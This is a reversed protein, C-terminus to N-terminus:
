VNKEELFEIKESKKTINMDKNKLARYISRILLCPALFEFAFLMSYTSSLYMTYIAGAMMDTEVYAIVFLRIIYLGLIGTLFTM